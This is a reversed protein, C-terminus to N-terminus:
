FLGSEDTFVEELEEDLKVRIEHEIKINLNITVPESPAQVEIKPSCGILILTILLIASMLYGTVSHRPKIGTM